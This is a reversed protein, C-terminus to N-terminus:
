NKKVLSGTADISIEFNDGLRKEFDKYLIIQEPTWYIVFFKFFSVSHIFNKLISDRKIIISNEFASTGLKLNVSDYLEKNKFEQRAKRLVNLSYLNHPERDGFKMNKIAFKRRWREAGQCLLEQGVKERLPGSLFRKCGKHNFKKIKDCIIEFKHDQFNLCRVEVKRKCEKCYGYIRVYIDSNPNMKYYKFMCKSVFKNVHEKKFKLHGYM